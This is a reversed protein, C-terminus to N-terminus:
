LVVGPARWCVDWWLSVEYLVCQCSVFIASSFMEMGGCRRCGHSPNPKCEDTLGDLVCGSLSLSSSILNEYGFTVAVENKPWIELIWSSIHCFIEDLTFLSSMRCPMVVNQLSATRAMIWCGLAAVPPCITVMNWMQDSALNTVGVTTVSRRHHRTESNTVETSCCEYPTQPVTTSWPSMPKSSISRWTITTAGRSSARQWSRQAWRHIFHFCCPAWQFSRQLIIVEMKAFIYVLCGRNFALRPQLERCILIEPPQRMGKM